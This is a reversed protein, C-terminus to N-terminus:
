LQEFMDHRCQNKHTRDMKSLTTNINGIIKWMKSLYIYFIINWNDEVNILKAKTNQFDIITLM